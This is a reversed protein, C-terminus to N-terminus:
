WGGQGVEGNIGELLEDSLEYQANKLEDASISFGAVQAIAVSLDFRGLVVDIREDQTLSVENRAEAILPM